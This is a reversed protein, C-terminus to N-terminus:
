LYLFLPAIVFQFLGILLIIIIIFGLNQYFNSTDYKLWEFEDNYARSDTFNTSTTPDAVNFSGIENLFIMFGMEQAPLNVKFM